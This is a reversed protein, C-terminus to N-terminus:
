FHVLFIAKIVLDGEDEDLQLRRALHEVGSQAQLQISSAEM